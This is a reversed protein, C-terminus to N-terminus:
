DRALTGDRQEDEAKYMYKIIAKYILLNPEGARHVKLCHRDYWEIVGRILEGDRLVLVMETKAQMQKLFYFSEANTQDPPVPKKPLRPPVPGTAPPVGAAPLTRALQDRVEALSPRILKRNPSLEPDPARRPVTDNLPSAM